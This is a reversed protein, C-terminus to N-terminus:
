FDLEKNKFLAYGIILCLVCIKLLEWLITFLATKNGLMLGAKAADVAGSFVRQELHLYKIMPIKKFNDMVIDAAALLFIDTLTAFTVNKTGYLVIMAIAGFGITKVAGSLASSLLFEVEGSGMGAGMIFGILLVALIYAGYSIMTIIISDTMKALLLKFRSIGRGILTQMSNSTFEDAYVSIFILAGMILDMVLNMMSYQNSAYAYGNWVNFRTRVAVSLTLLLALLLTIRYTPKRLIRILDAQILSKM